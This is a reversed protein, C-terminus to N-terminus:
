IDQLAYFSYIFRSLIFQIKEFWAKSCFIIKKYLLYFWLHKKNNNSNGRIRRKKKDESKLIKGRDTKKKEEINEASRAMVLFIM